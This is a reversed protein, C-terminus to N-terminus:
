KISEDLALFARITESAALALAMYAQHEPQYPGEVTLMRDMSHRLIPSAAEKATDKWSAVNQSRTNAEMYGVGLFNPCAACACAGCVFIATRRLPSPYFRALPLLVGQKRSIGHVFADLEHV